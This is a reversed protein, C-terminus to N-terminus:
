VGQDTNWSPNISVMKDVERFESLRTIRRGGLVQHWIKPKDINQSVGSPVLVLKRLLSRDTLASAGFLTFQKDAVTMESSSGM